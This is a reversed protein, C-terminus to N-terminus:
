ADDLVATAVTLPDLTDIVPTPEVVIVAVKVGVSVVSKTEPPVTVEANVTEAPLWAAKVRVEIDPVKPVDRVKVAAPPVVAPATEYVTVLPVAVTQETVPDDSVDVVHPVQMTVADM